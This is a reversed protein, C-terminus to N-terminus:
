GVGGDVFGTLIEKTTLGCRYLLERAECMEERLYGMDRLEAWGKRGARRVTLLDRACLVVSEGPDLPRPRMRDERRERIVALRRRIEQQNM